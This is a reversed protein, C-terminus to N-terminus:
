ANHKAEALVAKAMATWSYKRAAYTAMSARAAADLRPADIAKACRRASNEPDALDIAVGKVWGKVAPDARDSPEGCIVPLGCAMAEQIVLPYGEGVSPLLLVDATRYLEALAPQSQPGLDRVNSLGWAAPNLPGSGALHFRLDPRREALSRIVALGKKEVFRGVFLIPGGSPSTAPRPKKEPYFLTGDVGNFLLEYDRWAPDGLLEQRVADSVFVLRDAARLMRRTVLVNALTMMLRLVPSSFAIAAIHQILVVPKQKYWALMVAALSTAYLSDHVVVIDCRQVERSLARLARWGPIPMPLGSLRETPNICPLPIPTISEGPPADADSAAWVVDHGLAAFQRCLQGAVREIGGGHSEFFHCVTLVRM